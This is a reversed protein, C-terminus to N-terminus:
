QHRAAHPIVVACPYALHLHRYVLRGGVDEAALRGAFRPRPGPRGAPRPLPRPPADPRRLRRDLRPHRHRRPLLSQVASIATISCIITAARRTDDRRPKVESPMHTMMRSEVGAFAGAGTGGARDDPQIG